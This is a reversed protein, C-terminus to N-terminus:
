EHNSLKKKLIVKTGQGKVSEIKFDDSFTQMITMGMGSRELDPRTTMMPQLAMQLDDIGCGEDEVTITVTKEDDVEMYLHITMEPQNPYGHIICNTIAEALITKVEMVEDMTPNYPLLFAVGATRAFPENQIKACFSLSMANM